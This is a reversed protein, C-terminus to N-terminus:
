YIDKIMDMSPGYPVFGADAWFSATHTMATDAVLRKYGLKRAVDELRRVAETALGVGEPRAQIYEIVCEMGRSRVRMFVEGSSDHRDIAVTFAM